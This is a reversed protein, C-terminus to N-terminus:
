RASRKLGEYSNGEEVKTEVPYDMQLWGPVAIQGMPDRAGGFGGRMNSVNGYGAGDLLEAAIQSRGGMQCGCIV